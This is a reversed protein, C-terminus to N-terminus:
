NLFGKGGKLAIRRLIEEDSLPGSTKVEDTTMDRKKLAQVGEHATHSVNTAVMKLMKDLRGEGGKLLIIAGVAGLCHSLALAAAIMQDNDNM